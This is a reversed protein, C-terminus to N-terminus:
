VGEPKAGREKLAEKMAEHDTPQDVETYEGEVDFVITAIGAAQARHIITAITTSKGGGTTGIVATHRPLVNKENSPIRAEMKQYGVVRGITMDGGVGLVKASEEEDLVYVPSKPRPRYRPPVLKGGVEEGLIEVDARGHYDFVYAIQKGNAVVS